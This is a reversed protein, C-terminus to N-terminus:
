LEEHDPLHEDKTAPRRHLWWMAAWFGLFGLTCGGVIGGKILGTGTEDNLLAGLALAGGWVLLGVVITLIMAINKPSQM